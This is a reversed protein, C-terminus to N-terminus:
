NQKLLSRIKYIYFAIDGIIVIYIPLTGFSSIGKVENLANLQVFSLVLVLALNTGSLLDRAFARQKAAIEPDSDTVPKITASRWWLLLCLLITIIPLTYLKSYGSVGGNLAYVSLFSYLFIVAAVALSLGNILRNLNRVFLISRM